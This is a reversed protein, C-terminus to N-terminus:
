DANVNDSATRGGGGWRTGDPGRRVLTIANVVRIDACGLRRPHRVVDHAYGLGPEDAGPWILM